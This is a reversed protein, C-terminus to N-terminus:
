RNIPWKPLAVHETCKIEAGSWGPLFCNFNDFFAKIEINKKKM